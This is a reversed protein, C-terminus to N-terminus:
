PDHTSRSRRFASPTTSLRAGREAPRALRGDRWQKVAIGYRPGSAPGTLSTWVHIMGAHILFVIDDNESGARGAQHTGEFGPLPAQQEFARISDAPFNQDGTAAATIEGVQVGSRLIKKRGIPMEGLRREGAISRGIEHPQDFLM